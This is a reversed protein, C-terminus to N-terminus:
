DLRKTYGDRCRNDFKVFDVFYFRQVSLTKTTDRYFKLRCSLTLNVFLEFISSTCIRFLYTCVHDMNLLEEPHPDRNSNLSPMNAEPVNIERIVEKEVIKIIPLYGNNEFCSEDSQQEMDMTEALAPIEKSVFDKFKKLDKLSQYRRRYLRYKIMCVVMIIHVIIIELVLVCLCAFLNISVADFLFGTSSYIDETKEM